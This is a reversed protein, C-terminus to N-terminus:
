HCALQALIRAAVTSMEYPSILVVQMYLYTYSYM